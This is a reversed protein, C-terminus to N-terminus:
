KTLKQDISNNFNRLIITPKDIEEVPLIKEEELIKNLTSYLVNKYM